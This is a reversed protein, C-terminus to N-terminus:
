FWKNPVAQPDSGNVMTITCSQDYKVSIARWEKVFTTSIEYSLMSHYINLKLPM